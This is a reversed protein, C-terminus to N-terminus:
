FIIFLLVKQTTSIEIIPWNQVGVADRHTTGIWPRGCRAPCRAAPVPMREGIAEAGALRYFLMYPTDIFNRARNLATDATTQVTCSQPTTWGGGGETRTTRVRLTVADTVAPCAASPSFHGADLSHGAHVVVAYLLYQAPSQGAQPVTLQETVDVPTLM